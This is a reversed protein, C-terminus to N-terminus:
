KEEIQACAVFGVLSRLRVWRPEGGRRNKVASSPCKQTSVSRCLLPPSSALKPRSSSLPPFDPSSFPHPPPRKREIRKVPFFCNVEGIRELSLRFNNNKDGKFLRCRPIIVSKSLKGGKKAKAAPSVDLFFTFIFELRPFFLIERLFLLIGTLWWWLPVTWGHIPLSTGIRRRGEPSGIRRWPYLDRGFSLSAGGQAFLRGNDSSSRRWVWTRVHELPPSLFFLLVKIINRPPFLRWLLPQRRQLLTRFAMRGHPSGNSSLTIPVLREKERERKMMRKLCPIASSASWVRAWFEFFFREPRPCVRSPSIYRHIPM